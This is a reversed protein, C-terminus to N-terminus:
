NRRGHDGAAARRPDDFSAACRSRRMGSGVVLFVADSSGGPIPGGGDALYELNKEAALRGVHGIVTANPDIGFRHRFRSGNGSGFLEM